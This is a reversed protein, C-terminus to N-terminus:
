SRKDVKLLRFNVVGQFAKLFFVVLALLGVFLKLLTELIHSQSELCFSILELAILLSQLSNFLELFLGFEFDVFDFPLTVLELLM